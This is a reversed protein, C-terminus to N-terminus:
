AYAAVRVIREAPFQLIEASPKPAHQAHSFWFAWAANWGWISALLELWAASIYRSNM